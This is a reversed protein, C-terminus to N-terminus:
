PVGCGERLLYKTLDDLCARLDSDSTIEYERTADSGVSNDRRMTTLDAGSQDGTTWIVLSAFASSHECSVSAASRSRGFDRRVIISHAEWFPKRDEVLAAFVTFLDLDM